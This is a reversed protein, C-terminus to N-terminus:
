LNIKITQDNYYPCIQTNLFEELKSRQDMNDIKVLSYGKQVMYWEIASPEVIDLVDDDDFSCDKLEAILTKADKREAEHDDIVEIFSENAEQLKVSDERNLDYSKVIAETLELYQKFATKLVSMVTKLKSKTSM